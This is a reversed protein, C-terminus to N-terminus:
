HTYKSPDPYASEVFTSATKVFYQQATDSFFFSKIGATAGVITGLVAGGSVAYISWGTTLCAKIGAITLPPAIGTAAAAIIVASSVIAVGLVFGVAAVLFTKLAALALDTGEIPCFEKEFQMIKKLKVDKTKATDMDDTIFKILDYVETDVDSNDSASKNKLLIRLAATMNDVSLYKNHINSKNDKTSETSGADTAKLKSRYTNLLEIAAEIGPLPAKCNQTTTNSLANEETVESSKSTQAERKQQDSLKATSRETVDKGSSAAKKQAPQIPVAVANRKAAKNTAEVTSATVSQSEGSLLSQRKQIATVMKYFHLLEEGQLTSTVQRRPSTFSRLQIALLPEAIKDLREPYNDFIPISSEIMKSSPKSSMALLRSLPRHTANGFTASGTMSPKVSDVVPKLEPAQETEWQIVTNFFVKSLSSYFSSNQEQLQLKFDIAKKAQNLRLTHKSIKEKFFYDIMEKMEKIATVQEAIVTPNSLLKDILENIEKPFIMLRPLRQMPAIPWVELQKCEDRSMSNLVSQDQLLTNILYDIKSYSLTIDLIAAIRRGFNESRGVNFRLEHVFKSIGDISKLDIQALSSFEKDTEQLVLYAEIAKPIFNDNKAIATLPIQHKKLLEAVGGARKSLERETNLLEQLCRGLQRITNIAQKRNDIATYINDSVDLHLNEKLCGLIEKIQELEEISNIASIDQVATAPYRVLFDKLQKTISDIASTYVHTSTYLAFQRITDIFTSM